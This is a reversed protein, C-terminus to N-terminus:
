RCSLLHFLFFFFFFSIIITQDLSKRAESNRTGEVYVYTKVAVNPNEIDDNGAYHCIYYGTDLITAANVELISRYAYGDVPSPITEETIIAEDNHSSEM